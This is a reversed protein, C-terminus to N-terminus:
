LEQDERGIQARIVQMAAIVIGMQEYRISTSFVDSIFQLSSIDYARMLKDVDIIVEFLDRGAARFADLTIPRVIPETGQQEQKIQSTHREVM